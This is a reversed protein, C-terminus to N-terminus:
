RTGGLHITTAGEAHGCIRQLAIICEAYLDGRRRYVIRVRKTAAKTAMHHLSSTTTCPPLQSNRLAGSKAPTGNMQPIRVPQAELYHCSIEHPYGFWQTYYM